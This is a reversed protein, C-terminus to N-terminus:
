RSCVAIASSIPQEGRTVAADKHMIRQVVTDGFCCPRLIRISRDLCLLKLSPWMGDLSPSCTPSHHTFGIAGVEGTLRGVIM